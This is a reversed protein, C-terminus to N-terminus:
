SFDVPKLMEIAAKLVNQCDDESMIHYLPGLLLVRYYQSKRYSSPELCIHCADLGSVHEYKTGVDRATVVPHVVEANYRASLSKM